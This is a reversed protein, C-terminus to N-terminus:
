RNETANASSSADDMQVAVYSLVKCLMDEALSKSVSVCNRQAVMEWNSRWWSIPHCECGVRVYHWPSLRLVVYSEIKGVSDGDGDGYGDGYGYGSGYGDGCGCGYGYGYGSGYGSGSGSGNTNSMEVGEGTGIGSKEKM